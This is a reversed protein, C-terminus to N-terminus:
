ETLKDNKASVRNEEFRDSRDDAKDSQRKNFCCSKRPQWCAVRQQEMIQTGSHKLEVSVDYINKTRNVAIQDYFNASFSL